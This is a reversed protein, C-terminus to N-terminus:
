KRGSPPSLVKTMIHGKCRKQTKKQATKKTLSQVFTVLSQRLILGSFMLFYLINWPSLFWCIRSFKGALIKCNIDQFLWRESFGQGDLDIVAEPTALLLTITRASLMLVALSILATAADQLPSKPILLYINGASRLNVRLWNLHGMSFFGWGPSPFIQAGGSFGPAKM